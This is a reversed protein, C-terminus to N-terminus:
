TRARRGAPAAPESESDELPSEVSASLLPADLKATSGQEAPQLLRAAHELTAEFQAETRRMSRGYWLRVGVFVAAALLLVVVGFVNSDGEVLLTSIGLVSAGGVVISTLVTVIDGPSQTITLRSGAGEPELSVRVPVEQESAASAWARVAGVDSTVGTAGFQSRLLAVITGWAEDSVPGALISTRTADAQLGIVTKGRGTLGPMVDAAAARVHAPDIGAAAAVSELELLTLGVTVEPEETGQRRAARELIAAAECQSYVHEAV